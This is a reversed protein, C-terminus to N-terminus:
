NSWRKLSKRLNCNLVKFLSIDFYSIFRLKDLITNAARLIMERRTKYFIPNMIELMTQINDKLLRKKYNM